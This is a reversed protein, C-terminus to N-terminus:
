AVQYALEDIRARRKGHCLQCKGAFPHSKDFRAQTQRLLRTDDALQEHKFRGVAPLALMLQTHPANIQLQRGYSGCPLLSPERRRVRVGLDHYTRLHPSGMQRATRGPISLRWGDKIFRKEQM